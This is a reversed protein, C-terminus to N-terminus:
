FQTHEATVHFHPQSFKGYPESGAVTHGPTQLTRHPALWSPSLCLSHSWPSAGAHCRHTRQSKPHPEEGSLPVDTPDDSLEATSASESPSIGM